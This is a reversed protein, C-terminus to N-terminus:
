NKILLYLVFFVFFAFGFVVFIILLHEVYRFLYAFVFSFFSLVFFLVAVTSVFPTALPEDYSIQSEKEKQEDIIFKLKDVRKKSSKKKFELNDLELNDFIERRKEEIEVDLRKSYDSKSM